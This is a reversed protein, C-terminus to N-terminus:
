VVKIEKVQESGIYANIRQMIQRRNMTLENRLASSSVKIMLCGKKSFYVKETYRNILPGMEDEWFKEVSVRDLHSRLRYHDIMKQMVDKLTSENKRFM